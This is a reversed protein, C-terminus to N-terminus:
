LLSKLQKEQSHTLGRKTLSVGAQFLNRVFQELEDMQLLSEKM